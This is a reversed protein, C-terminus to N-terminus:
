RRLFYAFMWGRTTSNERQVYAWNSNIGRWVDSNSSYEIIYLREGQSLKTISPATLGPSSRLIVNNETCYGVGISQPPPQPTAVPRPTSAPQTIALTPTASPKPKPPIMTVQPSDAPAPAGDSVEFPWFKHNGEDLYGSLLAFAFKGGPLGGPVRIQKMDSHGEIPAVQYNWYSAKGGSEITDLQVLKLDALPIDQGDSYLIMTPKSDVRPLSTDGMMAERGQMADRFDMRRLESLADKNRVFIGFHDPLTGEKKDARMLVLYAAVGVSVVALVVLAILLPNSRKRAPTVAGSSFLTGTASMVARSGSPTQPMVTTPMVGASNTTLGGSSSSPLVPHSFSPATPQRVPMGGVAANLEQALAGATQPRAERRKELAHMVVAEVAPPISLNIARLPPPPQNVHQVVVATSALSNFPVVGCLMEYLVVGLSYIDSRSDLEEGICQEPSMYHPTGMVSGTQTLNSASQDRLKAIGFDLVKVRLGGTVSHIMINDPKIDRHIIGQRHAEDLAACAQAVVEAAASPTFPGRQRIINRVSEGEVMEMVLYFLGDQSVGFDYVTVANPHKLRAAAQAERRFREAAQPVTVQDPHLIKIAVEDGILLRTGRYVTGMGGLGLISDLRYRRDISRGLLDHRSDQITPMHRLDVLAAGCEICFTGTDDNPTQCTQCNM